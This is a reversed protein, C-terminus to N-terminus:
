DVQAAGHRPTVLDDHIRDATDVAVHHLEKLFTPERVRQIPWCIKAERNDARRSLFV